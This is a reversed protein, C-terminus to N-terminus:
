MNLLMMGLVLFFVLMHGIKMTAHLSYCGLNPLLIKLNFMYNVLHRIACCHMRNSCERQVGLGHFLGV